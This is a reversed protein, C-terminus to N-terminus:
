LWKSVLPHLASWRLAISDRTIRVAWSGCWSCRGCLSDCLALVLVPAARTKTSKLSCCDKLTQRALTLTFHRSQACIWIHLKLQSGLCSLWCHWRRLSALDEACDWQLFSYVYHSRYPPTPAVHDGYLLKSCIWLICIWLRICNYAKSSDALPAMGFWVVGSWTCTGHSSLM